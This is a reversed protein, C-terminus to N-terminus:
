SRQMGAGGVPEDVAPNGNGECVDPFPLARPTTLVGRGVTRGTSSDAASRSRRRLSIAPRAECSLAVLQARSARALLFLRVAVSALINSSANSWFIDPKKSACDAAGTALPM